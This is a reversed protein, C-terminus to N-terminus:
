LSESRPARNTISPISLVPQTRLALLSVLFAAVCIWNVLLSLKGSLVIPIAPNFLVAITSFGAAWGYKGAYVAQTAVLLASVCVIFELLGQYSQPSLRVGALLLVAISVWKLLKTLM